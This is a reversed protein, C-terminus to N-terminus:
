PLRNAARRVGTSRCVASPRQGDVSCIAATILNAQPLVAHALASKPNALKGSIKHWTLHAFLAPNVPAGLLLWRGGIYLFPIGGVHSTYPTTDYHAFVERDRGILPQLPLGERTRVETPSFTIYPSKFQAQAFTLTPTDPYVDGSGSLMTRLGEFHGFRMLAVTLPWRLAACYPCFDAGVYRVNPSGPAPRADIAQMATYAPATRLALGRQSATQLLHMVASSLPKDYAPSAWAVVPLLLLSVLLSQRIM